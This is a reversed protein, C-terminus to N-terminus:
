GFGRSGGGSSFGGGGSFGGSFSSGSSSRSSPKVSKMITSSSNLMRTLGNSMSSLGGTMGSSMGKLTPMSPGSGSIPTGAATPTRGVGRRGMGYYGYPHYWRPIPTSPVRAFKRIWTNELGFVTAYALYKEFIDGATELDQYKEINKLYNEFAGWMAAAQTGKHTKAPMHRAIYWILAGVLIVSISPCVATSISDSFLSLIGPLLFFAGGGLALIGMGLCGYQTRVTDPSKPFMGEAALEKYISKRLGPLKDNFKYRLSSLHREEKGQFIAELFEREFPRLDGDAKDTRTFTHDSKKKNKESMVLYGRRALDVLTSLIDHLDAREDILTGVLAPPLDNPPETIYEPVVIGTKPDRGLMYWLALVLLVGGVAMGLSLVGVALSITDGIQQRSQWQPVEIPLSNHPIQVKTILEQGPMLSQNLTYTITRGNDSVATAVASADGDVLGEVLYDMTETYLQPTIGEPLHITVTSAAVRGPHDKPIAIWSLTDGNEDVFIGGKVTYSFAYQQRGIAPEFYWKIIVDDADHNVTFTNPNNGYEQIYQVGNGSVAVNVIGDNSGKQNTYITGYGYTFTGGSFDLVQTETIRMDGNELLTIDVDFREWYFSKSQAQSQQPAVFLLFLAFPLLFLLRNLSPLRKRM